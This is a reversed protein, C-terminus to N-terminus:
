STDHVVEARRRHLLSRRLFDRMTKLVQRHHESFLAACGGGVLGVVLRLFAPSM